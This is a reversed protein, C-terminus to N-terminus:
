RWPKLWSLGESTGARPRYELGVHGAYGLEDLLSLLYDVRLEGQDPEQRAPAGAIQVHGLVGLQHALRLRTGVDGETVQCHYADFQLKLNPAGIAAILDLAQRQHTLLYGPMDRTNIPEICLEIEGAEKAAWRLNARYVDNDAGLGSLVHIRPNGLARSYRLATAISARFDGERGALCALGREGGIWDGAPANILVMRLGHAQLRAVVTVPEHEYPSMCEVADFGDRAAAEFRDLFPLETYLWNLNAAFRPM